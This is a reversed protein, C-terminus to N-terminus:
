KGRIIIVPDVKSAKRAPFVGAIYTTILAFSIGILYYLPNFFVPYTKITPLSEIRFPINNIIVSLTYGLLLGLVWVPLLTRPVPLCVLADM